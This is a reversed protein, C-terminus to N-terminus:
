PTHEDSNQGATANDPILSNVGAKRVIKRSGTRLLEM